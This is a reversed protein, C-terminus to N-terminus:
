TGKMEVKAQEKGKQKCNFRKECGSHTHSTGYQTQWFQHKMCLWSSSIDM